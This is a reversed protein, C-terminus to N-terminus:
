NRFTWFKRHWVGGRLLWPLGLLFFIAVRLV